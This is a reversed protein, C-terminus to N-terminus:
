SIYEKFEKYVEDFDSSDIYSKAVTFKFSYVIKGKEVYLNYKCYQGYNVSDYIVIREYGKLGNITVEKESIVKLNPYWKANEEESKLDSQLSEDYSSCFEEEYIGVGGGENTEEDHAIVYYSHEFSLEPLKPDPGELVWDKPVKFNIGGVSTAQWKGTDKEKEKEKDKEKEGEGGCAALSLILLLSLVLVVIKKM